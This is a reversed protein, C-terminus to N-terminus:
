YPKISFGGKREGKESKATYSLFKEDQTVSLEYKTGDEATGTGKYGGEPNATLSVDKLKLADKLKGEVESKSLTGPNKSCGPLCVLVVLVVAATHIVCRM